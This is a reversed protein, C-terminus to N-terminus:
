LRPPARRSPGSPLSAALSCARLEALSNAPLNALLAEAQQEVDQPHLSPWPTPSLSVVVSSGALLKELVSAPPSQRNVVDDLVHEPEVHAPRSKSFSKCSWLREDRFAGEKSFPDSVRVAVVHVNLQRNKEIAYSRLTRLLGVTARLAQWAEQAQPHSGPPVVSGVGLAEWLALAHQDVHERARPSTCFSQGPLPLFVAADSM